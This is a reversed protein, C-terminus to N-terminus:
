STAAVLAAPSPGRLLWALAVVLYLAAFAWTLPALLSLTLIGLHYRHEAFVLSDLVLFSLLASELGVALSLVLRPRPLLLMVPLLLLLPLYALAALHGAFALAAYSWGVWPDLPSYYWLYRLGVLALLAVNALAFGNAWRVLRARTGM